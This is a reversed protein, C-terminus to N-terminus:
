THKHVIRLIESAINFYSSCAKRREALQQLFSQLDNKGSREYKTELTSSLISFIYNRKEKKRVICNGRLVFRNWQHVGRDLQLDHFLAAHDEM